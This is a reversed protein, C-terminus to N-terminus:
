GSGSQTWTCTLMKKRGNGLVSQGDKRTRQPGMDTCAVVPSACHEHVAEM